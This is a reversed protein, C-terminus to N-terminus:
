PFYQRVIKVSKAIDKYYKERANLVRPCLELNILGDYKKDKLFSLFSEYNLLGDGLGLHEKKETFDSLHINRM